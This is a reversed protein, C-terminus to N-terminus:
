FNLDVISDLFGLIMTWLVVEGVKELKYRIRVEPNPSNMKKKAKLRYFRLENLKAKRSVDSNKATPKGKKSSAAEQRQDGIKFRIVDDDMKIEISENSRDRTYERITSGSSPGIICIRKDYLNNVSTARFSLLPLLKESFHGSDNRCGFHHMFRLLLKSEEWFLPTAISRLLWRSGLM